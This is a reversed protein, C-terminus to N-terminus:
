LAIKTNLKLKLNVALFAGFPINHAQVNTNGPTPTNFIGEVIVKKVDKLSSSASEDLFFQIVSKKKFLGDKPDQNGFLASLIENTGVIKQLILNNENLLYLTPQCSMPFANTANLTFVAATVHTKAEDNPIELDFTDRLTLGDAGVILPMKSKIKVKIRSNPFIEDNGGSLNGWPNLQFSYGIKNNSGLNEIYQEINSNKSNLELTETSPKLANWSGTAPSVILDNGVNSSILKVSKSQYNTNEALTMRGRMSIKAGNEIELGLSTNPIDLSGSVIRNMFDFNFETTDSIVQNGFYGKAYDIKIGSIKADFRFINATTVSVAPGNPDSKVILKSQLKNFSLQKSGTLDLTYGSLDLVEEKIGPNTQTGGEVSYTQEFLVGNKTAGPIQITYFAKTGIPNYVKLEIVGSAVHVKKLKIENLNLDHEEVQNILNIGPPLNTLNISLSNTQSILTDKIEILDNIGLNLITRSLNFNLTGDTTILTSDNYFNVLTLTDHAIPAGWDANWSTKERKCSFILISLVVCFFFSKIVLKQYFTLSM